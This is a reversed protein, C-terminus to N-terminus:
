EGMTEAVDRCLLFSKEPSHGEGMALGCTATIISQLALRDGGGLEQWWRNARTRVEYLSPKRVTPVVGWAIQRGKDLHRRLADIKQDTPPFTYVDFSLIDAGCDLLRGNELRACCHVMSECVMEHVAVICQWLADHAGNPSQELLPEDLQIIVKPHIERLLTAVHTIVKRVRVVVAEFLAANEIFPIGNLKLLSALTVPGCLQMKLAAANAFKGTRAADLFLKWTQSHMVLKAPRETLSVVLHKADVRPSPVEGDLAFADDLGYLIQNLMLERKSYNPLQPVFPIQPSHRAVFDIAAAPDRLPLSGIGTICIPQKVM